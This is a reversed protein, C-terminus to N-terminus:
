ISTVQLQTSICSKITFDSVPLGVAANLISITNSGAWMKVQGKFTVRPNDISGYATGLLIYEYSM